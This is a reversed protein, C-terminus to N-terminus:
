PCQELRRWGEATLEIPRTNVIRAGQIVLGSERVRSWVRYATHNPWGTEREIAPLAPIEGRTELDAVAQLFIMEREYWLYGNGNRKYGNQQALEPIKAAIRKRASYIRHGVAQPTIGLEAGIESYSMEYELMLFLVLLESPKLTELIEQYREKAIMYAASM